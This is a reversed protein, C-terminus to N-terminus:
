KVKEVIVKLEETTGPANVLWIYKDKDVSVSTTRSRSRKHDSTVVTINFKPAKRFLRM